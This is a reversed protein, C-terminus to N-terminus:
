LGLITTSRSAQQSAAAGISTIALDSFGHSPTAAGMSATAPGMHGTAQAPLAM